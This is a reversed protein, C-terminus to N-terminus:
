IATQDPSWERRLAEPSPARGKRIRKRGFHGSQVLDYHANAATLTPHTLPMSKTNYLRTRSWRVSGRPIFLQRGSDADLEFAAHQGFTPSSRRLDVAVDFIRGALVSVLKAQAHPPIQFHLGRITGVHISLSQNDQCFAVALSKDPWTEAFWGRSDQLRRPTILKLDPINM